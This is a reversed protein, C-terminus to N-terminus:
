NEKFLSSIFKKFKEKELFLEKSKYEKLKNFISDILDESKKVM